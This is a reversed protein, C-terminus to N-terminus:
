RASAEGIRRATVFIVALLVPGLWLLMALSFNRTYCGVEAWGFWSITAAWYVLPALQAARLM